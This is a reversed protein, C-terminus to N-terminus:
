SQRSKHCFISNNGPNKRNNGAWLQRGKIPRCSRSYGYGSFLEPKERHQLPNIQHALPKILGYLTFLLTEATAIWM